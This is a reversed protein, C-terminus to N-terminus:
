LELDRTYTMISEGYEANVNINQRQIETTTERSLHASPHAQAFDSLVMNADIMNSHSIHVGVTSQLTSEGM